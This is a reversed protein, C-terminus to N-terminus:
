DNKDKFSNVLNIIEQYSEFIKQILVQYIEQFNEKKYQVHLRDCISKMKEEKRDSSTLHSAIIRFDYLVFFPLMLGNAIEKNSHLEIFKQFLKLGGLGKIKFNSDKSTIFSKMNKTDLSEVFIRNLSEIFPNVQKEIWFVPLNLNDLITSIEGHFTYLAFNYKDKTIKTLSNKSQFAKSEISPEAWQVEIQGNYFESHITHDSEINESKLYYKENEPLSDIDGLWMIVKNNKNIGFQINWEEGKSISGYTGSFIELIYDPDQSYKNLVKSNFFVPTLFGPNWERMLLPIYEYDIHSYKFNYEKAFTYKVVNNLNPSLYIGKEGKEIAQKIFYEILYKTKQPFFITNSNENQLLPVGDLKVFIGDIMTEYYDFCLELKEKTKEDFYTQTENLKLEDM